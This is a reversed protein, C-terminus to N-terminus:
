NNKHDHWSNKKSKKITQTIHFDFSLNQDIYVGLDKECITESLEKIIDAQKIYYKYKPNNKGLHLIKCKDSNFKILWKDTWEVLKNISTQLLESDTVSLISKYAKTDDAFIKSM